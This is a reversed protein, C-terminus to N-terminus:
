EALIETWFIKLRDNDRALMLQLGIPTKMFLIRTGKPFSFFSEDLVEVRPEFFDDNMIIRTLEAKDKIVPGRGKQKARIMTVAQVLTATAARMEGVTGVPHGVGKRVIMNALASNKHLLDIVESPYLDSAKVNPTEDSQRQLGSIFGLLLFNNTAVYFGEWDEADAATLLPSSYEIGPAFYLDVPRTNLEKIKFSKYREVFGNFYFNQIIPTLDQTETFQITFHLALERAEKEEAETARPKDTLPVSKAHSVGIFLLCVIVSISAVCKLSLWGGQSFNGPDVQCSHHWLPSLKPALGFLSSLKTM